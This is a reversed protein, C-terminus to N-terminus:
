RGVIEQKLSRLLAVLDRQEREGVRFKRLAAELDEIVADFAPETIGLGAHARHMDRGSYACPGGTLQCLKDVLLARMHPVDINAFMASVRRDGTMGTVWADVIAVLTDHGGLRKYLGKSPPPKCDEVDRSEDPFRDQYACLATTLEKRQALTLLERCVYVQHERAICAIAPRSWRASECTRDLAHEKARSAEVGDVTGRLIRAVDICAPPRDPDVRPPASCAVVVVLAWRM